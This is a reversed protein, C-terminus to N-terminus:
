KLSLRYLNGSAPLLLFDEELGPYRDNTYIPRGESLYGKLEALLTPAVKGENGEPMAELFLIDTLHREVHAVYATAFLVRWELVFVANDETGMLHQEAVSRPERLDYVPYPYDERVFSAEGARLAQWRIAAVPQIVVSALFLVPPLYLLYDRFSVPRLYRHAWDLIFGMGTGAAVALPIYLSLYFVQRDKVQYNLIFFLSILFTLPYFIGIAFRTILIVALGVLALGLILPPFEIEVLRSTLDGWEKKLSIEEAEPFLSGGWQPNTLIIKLRM